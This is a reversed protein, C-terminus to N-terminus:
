QGWAWRGVRRLGASVRVTLRRSLLFRWEGCEEPNLAAQSLFGTVSSGNLPLEPVFHHLWVVRRALFLIHARVFPFLAGRALNGRPADM